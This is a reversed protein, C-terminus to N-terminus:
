KASILILRMVLSRPARSNDITITQSQHVSVVDGPKVRQPKGDIILVAEGGQVDFLAGSDTLSLPASTRDPGVVLDIVEIKTAGVGTTHLTRALLGPVMERFMNETSAEGYSPTSGCPCLTAVAFLLAARVKLRAVLSIM